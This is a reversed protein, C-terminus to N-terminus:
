NVAGPVIVKERVEVKLSNRLPILEHPLPGGLILVSSILRHDHTFRARAQLVARYKVCQFLGRTVDEKPSSAPKVEVGILRARTEFLVDISDGSPLCHEIESLTDAANLGLLQPNKAVFEKLALHDPGEGGAGWHGARKILEPVNNATPRLRLDELVEGWYSYACVKAWYEEIIARRERSNEWSYGRSTLFADFGPGPLNTQRNIVMSQIHPIEEDWERALDNLAEGICGLPYNLNRPNPMGVEQALTEYYVPNASQAQRVLIPLVQRARQQYLKDGHFGTAVDATKAM